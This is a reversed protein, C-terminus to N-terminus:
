SCCFTSKNSGNITKEQMSKRYKNRYSYMLDLSMQLNKNTKINSEIDPLILDISQGSILKYFVYLCKSDFLKVKENINKNVLPKWRAYITKMSDMVKECEIQNTNVLSRDLESNYSWKADNKSVLLCSIAMSIFLSYVYFSRFNTYGYRDLFSFYTVVMRKRYSILPLLDFVVELYNKVIRTEKIKCTDEYAILQLFYIFLASEKEQSSIDDIDVM